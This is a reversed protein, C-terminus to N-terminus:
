CSFLLPPIPLHKGYALCWTPKPDVYIILFISYHYLDPIKDSCFIALWNAAIRKDVAPM